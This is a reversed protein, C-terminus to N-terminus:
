FGAAYLASSDNGVCAGDLALQLSGSRVLHAVKMREGAAWM